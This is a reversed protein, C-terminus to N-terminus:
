QLALEQLRLVRSIWSHDVVKGSKFVRLGGILKRNVQFVPLAQPHESALKQRIEKKLTLDIERPSQVIILPSDCVLKALHNIESSLEQYSYRLLMTKLAKAIPSQSPIMKEAMAKRDAEDLSHSENMVDLRTAFSGTLFELLATFFGNDNLKTEVGDTAYDTIRTLDNLFDGESVQLLYKQFPKPLKLDKMLGARAAEDKGFFKPDQGVFQVMEYALATLLSKFM